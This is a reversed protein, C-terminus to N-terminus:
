EGGIGPVLLGANVYMNSPTFLQSNQLFFVPLLFFIEVAYLSAICPRFSLFIGVWAAFLELLGTGSWKWALSLVFHAAKFLYLSKEEM